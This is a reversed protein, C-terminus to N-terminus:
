WLLTTEFVVQEEEDFAPQEAPFQTLTVAGSVFSISMNLCNSM